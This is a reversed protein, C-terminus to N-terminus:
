SGNERLLRVCRAGSVQICTGDPGLSNGYWCEKCADGDCTMCGSTRDWEDADETCAARASGAFLRPLLKPLKPCHWAHHGPTPLVLLTCRCGYSSSRLSRPFPAPPPRAAPPSLPRHRQAVAQQGSRAAHVRAFCQAHDCEGACLLVAVILLLSGGRAVRTCAGMNCFALFRCFSQLVPVFLGERPFQALTRSSCTAEQGGGGGAPPATGSPGM